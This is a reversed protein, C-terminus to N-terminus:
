GQLLRLIGFLTNDGAGIMTDCDRDEVFEPTPVTGGHRLGPTTCVRISYCSYQEVAKHAM